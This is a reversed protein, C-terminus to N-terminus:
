LRNPRPHSSELFVVPWRRHWYVVFILDRQLLRLFGADGHPGERRPSAFRWQRPTPAFPGTADPLQTLEGPGAVMTEQQRRFLQTGHLVAQRRVAAAVEERFPGRPGNPDSAWVASSWDR